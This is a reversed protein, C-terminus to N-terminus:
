SEKSRNTHMDLRSLDEPNVNLNETLKIHDKSFYRRSKVGGDRLGSAKGFSCNYEYVLAGEWFILRLSGSIYVVIRWAAWLTIRLLM